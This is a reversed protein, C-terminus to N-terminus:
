PRPWVKIEERPGSPLFDYAQSSQGTTDPLLQRTEAVWWIQGNREELRHVLLTNDTVKPRPRGGFLKRWSRYPLNDRQSTTGCRAELFFLSKSKSPDKISKIKVLPVHTHGTLIVPIDMKLLFEDLAEYSRDNIGLVFDPHLYSHHLLLVRIEDSDPPGLNKAWSRLHDRFSGRAFFREMSTPPIEADTNIGFFRLKIKKGTSLQLSTQRLRSFPLAKTPFHVALDPSPPGFMPLLGRGPWHDHNGPIALNKWRGGNTDIQLGADRGVPPQYTKGLYQDAMAFQQPKGASTLDGTVILEAKEKSRLDDFFPELVM